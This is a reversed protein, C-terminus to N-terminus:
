GTNLSIGSPCCSFPSKLSIIHNSCCSFILPSVIFIESNGERCQICVIYQFVYPQLQSQESFKQFVSQQCPQCTQQQLMMSKKWFHWVSQQLVSDYSQGIPNHHDSEYSQLGFRVCFTNIKSKSFLLIARGLFFFSLGRTEM